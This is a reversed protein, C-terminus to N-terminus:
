PSDPLIAGIATTWQHILHNSQKEDLDAHYSHTYTTVTNVIGNKNAELSEISDPRIFIQGRKNNFKIIKM